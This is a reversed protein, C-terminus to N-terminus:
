PGTNIVKHGNVLVAYFETLIYRGQFSNMALM